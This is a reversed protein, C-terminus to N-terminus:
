QVAQIGNRIYYFYVEIAPSVSEFAYTVLFHLGLIPLLVLIAWSAKRVQKIEIATNGRLKHCLTWVVFVVILLNIALLISSALSIVTFPSITEQEMFKPLWCINDTDYFAMLVAFISTLILPTGWAFLLFHWLRIKHAQYTWLVVTLLYVGEVFMWFYIATNFYTMFFVFIRCGHHSEDALKVGTYSLLIYKIYSILMALMLNCHIYNRLCRLT